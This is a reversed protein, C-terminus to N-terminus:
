QSILGSCGRIAITLIWFIAFLLGPSLNLDQFIAVNSKPRPLDWKRRLIWVWRRKWLLHSVVAAYARRLLNPPAGSNFKTFYAAALGLRVRAQEEYGDAALVIAWALNGYHQYYESTQEAEFEELLTRAKEIEGDVAEQFGLSARFAASTSDNPFRRLAEARASKATEWYDSKLGRTGDCLASLWVLTNPTVDGERTRWDAYWAVGRKYLALTLFTGGTESWLVGESSLEERDRKSWRILKQGFRHEGALEILRRWGEIRIPSGPKQQKVRKYGTSAIKNAPLFSLSLALAGPATTTGEAIKGDLLKRLVTDNWHETFLQRVWNLAGFDAQSHNLIRETRQLAEDQKKARLALEIGDCEIWVSPAYHELRLLTEAAGEFDQNQMQLDLLRRGAFVHDPQLQHARAYAQEAPHPHKLNEEAQGIYAFARSEHPSHRAWRTAIELVGDWDGRKSFWGCLEVMGWIYDPERELLERMSKIAQVPQGSQMLVWARRGEMERTPRDQGAPAECIKLAEDFQGDYALLGALQDRLDGDEPSLSIGHRIAAIAKERRGLEAWADAEIPWWRRHHGHSKSAAEIDAAMESERHDALAWRALSTWGWGYFPLKKMAARLLDIAEGPRGMRRVLDALYGHNAANLPDTSVAKRLVAEAEAFQGDRELAEAHYRAAEDWAPSLEMARTTAKVEEAHNGKSEHVRALDLWARTMLPFATTMKVAAKMADDTDQMRLAQDIRASWTQWLDPREHCFGKLKDLLVRPEIWRWALRQFTLVISGNSVQRRMEHEIFHLTEVSSERDLALRM